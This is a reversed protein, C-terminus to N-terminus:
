SAGKKKQNIPLSVTFTTGEGVKSRVTMNGNSAMRHWELFTMAGTFDHIDRIADLIDRVYDRYERKM